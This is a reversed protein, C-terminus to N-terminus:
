IWGMWGEFMKALNDTNTAERIVADVHESIGMRHNKKSKDTASFLSEDRGDLKLRVQRLIDVAHANRSQERNFRLQEHSDRNVSLSEYFMNSSDFADQTYASLGSSDIASNGGGETFENEDTTEIEMVQVESLEVLSEFLMPTDRALEEFVALYSSYDTETVRYAELVPIKEALTTLIAEIRNVLVVISVAQKSSGAYKVIRGMIRVLPEMEGLLLDHTYVIKKTLSEVVHAQEEIFDNKQKLESKVASEYGVQQIRSLRAQHYELSKVSDKIEDEAQRSAKSRVRLSEYHSIYETLSALLSNTSLFEILMKNRKYAKSSFEKLSVDGAEAKGWVDLSMSHQDIASLEIRVQELNMKLVVLEGNTSKLNELKEIAEPSEDTFDNVHLCKYRELAAEFPEIFEVSSDIERMAWTAFHETKVRECAVHILNTAIEEIKTTDYGNNLISAEVAIRLTEIFVVSSSHKAQMGHQLMISSILSQFYEDLRRCMPQVVFDQVSNLVFAILQNTSSDLGMAGNLLLSVDINVGLEGTPDSKRLSQKSINESALFATGSFLKMIQVFMIQKLTEKQDDDYSTIEVQRRFFNILHQVVSVINRLLVNGKKSETILLNFAELLRKILTPQKKGKVDLHSLSNSLERITHMSKLLVKSHESNSLILKSVAKFLESFSHYTTDCLSIFMSYSEELIAHLTKEDAVWDDSLPINKVADLAHRLLPIIIAVNTIRKTLFIFSDGIPGLENVVEEIATNLLPAKGRQCIITGAEIFVKLFAVLMVSGKSEIDVNSRGAELEKHFKIIKALRLRKNSLISKSASFLGRKEASHLCSFHSLPLLSNCANRSFGGDILVQLQKDWFQSFDISTLYSAYFSLKFFDWLADVAKKHTSLTSLVCSVLRHNAGEDVKLIEIEKSSYCVDRFYQHSDFGALDSEIQELNHLSSFAQEHKKSWVSHQSKILKINEKQKVIEDSLWRQMGVASNDNIKVRSEQLLQLYIDRAVVIEQLRSYGGNLLEIITNCIERIQSQMELIRSSLLGLQANLNILSTEHQSKEDHTWDVLPDYIFTELLTLLVEKNIRMVRMAHECAIRFPGEIGTPGLAKVMNQTLRFPVTEAVQLQKGKEFCVNFDIHLVRGKNLDVLINDLHRDGLGIVYGVVSTVAVSRAFMKSKEWWVVADPSSSWIEKEILHDPTEDVLEVFIKRLMDVPWKKRATSPDVKWEKMAVGLKKFYLETPRFLTSPEANSSGDTPQNQLKKAAHQYHQWKRYVSYMGQVDEIWEIMGHSDGLPIVSFCEAFLSRQRTMEDAGLFYNITTIFQQIREDLHLDEFGKLLYSHKTGDSALVELKKPKTKSPLILVDPSVKAITLLNGNSELGPISILSGSLESLYPSVDSLLVSRRRQMNTVLQKQFDKLRQKIKAPHEFDNAESFEKLLEAITSGFSSVFEKEYITVPTLAISNEHLKQLKFLIPKLVNIANKRLVNKREKSSLTKNTNVRGLDSELQKVRRDIELHLHELGNLWLEEWLVSVRQIEYVWKRVQEVLEADNAQLAKFLWLYCSQTVELKKNRSETTGLVVPYMILHPVSEGLQCLLKLIENRVMPEPNHLRSFLQPIVTEWPKYPTDAFGESFTAKLAAGYKTLLRIIRLTITISDGKQDESAPRSEIADHGIRLYKFYSQSALDFYDFIRKKMVNLTHEIERVVNRGFTEIQVLTEKWDIASEKKGVSEGLQNLLSVLIPGFLKEHGVSQLFDRLYTLEVNNLQPELDTNILEDLSRRGMRYCFTGFELWAKPYDPSIETSAKLLHFSVMNTSAFDSIQVRHADCFTAISKQANPDQWNLRDALNWHSILKCANAKVVLDSKSVTDLNKNLINLLLQLADKSRGEEFLLQALKYNNEMATSLTLNRQTADLLSSALKFNRTKRASDALLGRIEDLDPDKRRERHRKEFDMYSNLIRLWESQNTSTICEPRIRVKTRSKGIRLGEIQNSNSASSHLDTQHQIAALGSLKRKLDTAPILNFLSKLTDQVHELSSHQSPHSGIVADALSAAALKILCSRQGIELISGVVDNAPSLSEFPTVEACGYSFALKVVDSSTEASDLGKNVSDWDGLQSYCELAHMGVEFNFSITSDRSILSELVTLEKLARDFEGYTAVTQICLWKHMAHSTGDTSSNIDSKERWLNALGVLTDVDNNRKLMKCTVAFLTINEQVWTNIDTLNSVRNHVCEYAQHLGIADSELFSSLELVVMRIRAFWEECVRINTSFFSLVLKSPPPIISSTGFSANRTQIEILEVLTILRRARRCLRYFQHPEIGSDGKMCEKFLTLYVRMGKEVAELTQSPGGFGTRLKSLVFYRAAEWLACFMLSEESISASQLVKESVPLTSKGLVHRMQCSNFIRVLWDLSDTELGADLLNLEEPKQLFTSLGLYTMLVHFHCPKFTGLYPSAMVCRKFSQMWNNKSFLTQEVLTSCMQTDIADLSCVSKWFAERVQPEVDDLRDTLLMLIDLMNAKGRQNTKFGCLYSMWLEAISCRIRPDTEISASQLLAVLLSDILSLVGSQDVDTDMRNKELVFKIIADIWGISLRMCDHIGSLFLDKILEFQRNLTTWNQLSRLEIPSIHLSPLFFGQSESVTYLALHLSLGLKLLQPETVVKPLLFTLLIDFTAFLIPARNGRGFLNSTHSCVSVDFELLKLLNSEGLPELFLYQSVDTQSANSQISVDPWLIACINEVEGLLVDEHIANLPVTYQVLVMKPVVDELFIRLSELKSDNNLVEFRFANYLPSKLHFVCMEVLFANDIPETVTKLCSHVNEILCMLDDDNDCTEVYESLAKSAMEAIANICTMKLQQLIHKDSEFVMKVTDFLLISLTKLKSERNLGQLATLYWDTYYVLNATNSQYLLQTTEDKVLLFFCLLIHRYCKLNITARTSIYSPIQQDYLLPVGPEFNCNVEEQVFFMLERLVNFGFDLNHPWFGTMKPFTAMILQRTSAPTEDDLCLRLMVGMIDPFALVFVEAYLNSAVVFVKLIQPILEFEDLNRLLMLLNSLVEQIVDDSFGYHGNRVELPELVDHLTEVLLVRAEVSLADVKRLNQFICRFFMVPHNYYTSVVASICKKVSRKLKASVSADDLMSVLSAIGHGGHMLCSSASQIDVQVASCSLLFDYLQEASHIRKNEPGPKLLRSAM